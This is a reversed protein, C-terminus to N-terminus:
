VVSAKCGNQWSSSNESWFHNRTIIRVTFFQQRELFYNKFDDMWVEAVRGVNYLGLDKKWTIPNSNRFIHGV